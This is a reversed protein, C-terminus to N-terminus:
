ARVLEYGGPHRQVKTNNAEAMEVAVEVEKRRLRNAAVLLEAIRIDTLILKNHITKLREAADEIEMRDSRVEQQLQIAHWVTGESVSKRAIMVRGLPLGTLAGMELEEALQAENVINTRIM